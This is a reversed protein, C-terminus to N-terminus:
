KKRVEHQNTWATLAALLGEDGGATVIVNQWGLKHAALAIREHSVFLPRPFLVKRDSEGLLAHLNHLAESSSICLVDPNAALLETIDRHPKVRHYCTIYEVNAGREKLTDGLLERGTDGRFIVIRKGSVKQLETLALLSESDFRLQPAIVRARGLDRLAKASSLGVTAVEVTDPLGGAMQIAEMGYRVANPSIFIALQYENLRSVLDNLVQKDAIPTIELLPFRICIGGLAEIEEALRTSQELPRTVM